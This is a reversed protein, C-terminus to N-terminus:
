EIKGKDEYGPVSLNYESLYRSYNYGMGSLNKSTAM